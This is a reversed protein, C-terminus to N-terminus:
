AFDVNDDAGSWKNDDWGTEASGIVTIVDNGLEIIELFPSLYTKNQKM